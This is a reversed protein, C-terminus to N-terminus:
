SAARKMRAAVTFPQLYRYLVTAALWHIKNTRAKHTLKLLLNRTLAIHTNRCFRQTGTPPSQGRQQDLSTTNEQPVSYTDPANQEGLVEMNSAESADGLNPTAPPPQCKLPLAPNSIAAMM